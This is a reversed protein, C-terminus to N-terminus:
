PTTTYMISEGMGGSAILGMAEFRGPYDLSHIRQERNHQAVVALDSGFVMPITEEASTKPKSLSDQVVPKHM